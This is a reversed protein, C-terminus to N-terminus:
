SPATSSSSDAASRVAERAERPDVGMAGLLDVAMARVQSVIANASLNATVELAQTARASADLLARELEDGADAEGGTLHGGLIGVAAALQRVSAIATPPVRDDREIAARASRALVRTSRIAYDLEVLAVEYPALGPRAGRRSPAWVTTEQGIDLAERVEAARGDLTRARELVAEIEVLDHSELAAAIMELVAQLENLLPEAKRRVIRLPDIPALANALLAVGAGILADIFRAGPVSNSASGLTVVLVASIAAQNVLLPTGGALVAVAMALAVVVGLQWVGTGIGAIILDAVLIGLAVGLGIEWARRGRQGVTLGLTLIAAVPAFFAERHGLLERALLWAASAAVAALLLSLWSQRLDALREDFARRSRERTQDLLESPMQRANSAIVVHYCAAPSRHLAASPM